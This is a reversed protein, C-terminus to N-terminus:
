EYNSVIYDWINDAVEDKKMLPLDIEKGTKTIITVKNTDVDFGSHPELVNNFVIMDLGKNILKQRAKQLDADTQASFGVKFIHRGKSNISQLIDVTKSMELSFRDVKDIKAENFVSPKYDSVAATMVLIQANSTHELVAKHMEETTEVQVIPINHPKHIQTPGSILIVQGGRRKASQAIAYGMKGSSRNSIFRIPDIYERTPGATVVIKKNILDQKYFCSKITELIVELRAMRGKGVEGCALSGVEPEIIIVGDEILSTINEQVIKNEYMRHNMAPAVVVKGKYALYATSLLDDAIGHSLKAIINATAPAIVFLDSSSPLNIHSLPEDFMDTYVKVACASEISLPTVFRQGSRTIICNVEAAEDKLRRILEISKYAAVSGTIGFLIRKHQLVSM